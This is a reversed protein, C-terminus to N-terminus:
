ASQEARTEGLEVKHHKIWQKVAAALEHVQADELSDNSIYNAHELEAGLGANFQTGGSRDLFAFWAAGTYGAVQERPFATLATRKLLAAMAVLSERSHTSNDYATLLHKLEKLAERRYSNHQWRIFARLLVIVLILAALALVIQGGPALPWWGAAAPEIIDHLRDLSTADENM